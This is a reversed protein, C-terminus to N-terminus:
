FDKPPQSLKTEFTVVAAVPPKTSEILSVGSTELIM